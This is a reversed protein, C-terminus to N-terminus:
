EPITVMPGDFDRVDETGNSFHITGLLGAQPMVDRPSSGFLLLGFGSPLYKGQKELLLGQQMLRRNFDDVNTASSLGRMSRYENLADQSLDQLEINAPAAELESLKILNVSLNM